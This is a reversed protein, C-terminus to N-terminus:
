SGWALAIVTSIYMFFPKPMVKLSFLTLDSLSSQLVFVYCDRLLLTQLTLTTTHVTFATEDFPWLQVKEVKHM